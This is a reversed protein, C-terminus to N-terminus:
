DEPEASGDGRLVMTTAVITAGVFFIAAAAPWGQLCIQFTSHELLGPVTRVISALVQKM